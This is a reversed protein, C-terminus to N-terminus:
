SAGSSAEWYAAQIGFSDRLPRRTSAQTIAPTTRAPTNTRPSEPLPAEAPRAAGASGLSSSEPEGTVSAESRLAAAPRGASTTNQALQHPGQWCSAGATSRKARLAVPRPRTTASRAFREGAPAEHQCPGCWSAWFVVLAPRGAAASRLSALTVPSGSLLEKPLAPAARGASAGKGSLGLVLVGALVVGAIVWALVRRGNRSLKPM